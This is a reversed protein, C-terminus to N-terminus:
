HNIIGATAYFMVLNETLMEKKLQWTIINTQANKAPKSYLIFDKFSIWNRKTQIETNIETNRFM